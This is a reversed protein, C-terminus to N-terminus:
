PREYLVRGERDARSVISNRHTRQEAAEKPTVLIVDMSWPRVGFLRLIARIREYFPLPTEMEVLLDVDGEPNETGTARSSFVVVRKPAFAEVIRHAIEHIPPEMM